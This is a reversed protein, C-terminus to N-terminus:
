KKPWVKDQIYKLGVNAIELDRQWPGAASVGIGGICTTKFFPRGARETEATIEEESPDCIVVGGAIATGGPLFDQLGWERTKMYANIETIDKCFIAATWAKRIAIDQPMSAPGDMKAFAVLKGREDVVALCAHQWYKEPHSRLEDLMAQIAGQAEELGVSGKQYMQGEKLTASPSGKRPNKMGDNIV